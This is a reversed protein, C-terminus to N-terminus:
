RSTGIVDIEYAEPVDCVKKNTTKGLVYNGTNLSNYDYVKSKSTAGILAGKPQGVILVEKIGGFTECTCKIKQVIKGGFAKNGGRISDIGPIKLFDKALGDCDPGLFGLFTFLVSIGILVGAIIPGIPGAPAIIPAVTSIYAESKVPFSM